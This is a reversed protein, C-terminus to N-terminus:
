KLGIISKARNIRNKDIKLLQSLPNRGHGFFYYYVKYLKNLYFSYFPWILANSVFPILRSLKKIKTMGAQSVHLQDLQIPRWHVSTNGNTITWFVVVSDQQRSPDLEYETGPHLPAFAFNGLSYFVSANNIKEFGQLVHSHHGVILDAGSEVFFKADKRQWPEPFRSNDMGWHL